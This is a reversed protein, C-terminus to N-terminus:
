LNLGRYRNFCAFIEQRRPMAMPSSVYSTESLAKLGKTEVFKLIADVTEQLTHRGDFMHKEAYYLMYSLATLQEEDMLQEVFRLDVTERSISFADRGLNKLKVRDEKELRRNKSPKRLFSPKQCADRASLEMPFAQAEKKAAMTIEKPRYEEMQIIQDAIHFFSGSSGAVLVSSIKQDEFLKGARFIFPTIPEMENSVVRQMLEDRIMFNTACTDEDILFLECGAEIAEIVNAAQSTSGSADETYFSQTDKRNPLRNIFMSIDTNKISRGDEARIKAATDDTIVYERGDGQIHNYVGLELAKLLTSKGHYGGGIILTIGRRIGMGSLSGHCPLELTVEMSKPSQFPVADRFPRSSVGSERPLISGNAVFACLGLEKLKTRIYHQDAALDVAAKAAKSNINAYFLTKEICPPLFDYLIKILEESNITRGNAPFGIALRIKLSGNEPNMELATRSLVEQGPRTISIAGSKGSGRARKHFHEIESAFLRLLHDCLATRQHPTEYLSKPFGAAGGDIDISVKSPGAFPDGQVHDINFVYSSFRYSGRTDKYAPYSKRHIAHLLQKLDNASKM